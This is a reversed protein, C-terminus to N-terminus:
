GISGFGADNLLSEVVISILDVIAAFVSFGNDASTRSLAWRATFVAFEVMIAAFTSGGADRMGSEGRENFVRSCGALLAAASESVVRDLM